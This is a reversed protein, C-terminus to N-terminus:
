PSRAGADMPALQLPHLLLMCSACPCEHMMTTGMHLNCTTAAGAGVQASPHQHGTGRVKLLKRQHHKENWCSACVSVRCKHHNGEAVQAPPRKGCVVQAYLLKCQTTTTTTSYTHNHYTCRTISTTHLHPLLCNALFGASPADLAM